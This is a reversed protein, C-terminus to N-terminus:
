AREHFGQHDKVVIRMGKVLISDDTAVVTGMGHPCRRHTHSDGHPQSMRFIPDPEIM